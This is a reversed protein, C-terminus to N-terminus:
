LPRGAPARPPRWTVRGVDIVLGGASAAQDKKDDQQGALRHWVQAMEILAARANHNRITRAIERPVASANDPM